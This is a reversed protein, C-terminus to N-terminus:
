IMGRRLATVNKPWDSPCSPQRLWHPPIPTSELRRLRAECDAITDAISTLAQRVRQDLPRRSVIDLAYLAARLDDCIM